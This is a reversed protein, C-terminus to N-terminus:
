RVAQLCTDSQRVAQLCSRTATAAWPNTTDQDDATAQFSTRHAESPKVNTASRVDTPGYNTKRAMAAESGQASHRVQYWDSGSTFM